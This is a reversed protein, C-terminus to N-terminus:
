QRYIGSNGCVKKNIRDKMLVKNDIIHNCVNKTDQYDNPRKSTIKCIQYLM